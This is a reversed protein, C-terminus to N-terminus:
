AIVTEKEEQEDVPLGYGKEWQEMHDGSVAESSEKEITRERADEAVKPEPSQVESVIEVVPMEEQPTDSCGSVSVIVMFSITALGSKWFWATKKLLM